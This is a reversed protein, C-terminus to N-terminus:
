ILESMLWKTLAGEGASESGIGAFKLPSLLLLRESLPFEARARCTSCAQLNKQLAKQVTHGRWITIRWSHPALLLCRLGLCRRLIGWVLTM